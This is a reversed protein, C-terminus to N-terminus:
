IKEDKSVEQGNLITQSVNGSFDTPTVPNYAQLYEYQKIKKKTKNNLVIFVIMLALAPLFLMICFSSIVTIVLLEKGYEGFLSEFLDELLHTTYPEDTAYKSLSITECAFATVCGFSFILVLVLALIVTIKKM